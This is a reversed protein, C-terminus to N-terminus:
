WSICLFATSYISVGPQFKPQEIQEEVGVLVGDIYLLARGIDEDAISKIGSIVAAITHEKGDSIELNSFTIVNTTQDNTRYSLHIEDHSLKTYLAWDRDVKDVGKVIIYGDNQLDQQLITFITLDSNLDPHDTGPKRIATLGDFKTPTSIYTRKEASIVNSEPELYGVSTYAPQEEGCFYDDDICDDDKTCVIYIILLTMYNYDYIDFM